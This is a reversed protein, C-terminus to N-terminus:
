STYALNAIFAKNESYIRDNWHLANLILYIVYTTTNTKTRMSPAIKIYIDFVCTQHTQKTKLIIDIFM